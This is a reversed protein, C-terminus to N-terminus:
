KEKLKDELVDNRLRHGEVDKLQGWCGTIIDDNGCCCIDAGLLGTCTAAGGTAM